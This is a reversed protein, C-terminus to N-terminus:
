LRSNFGDLFFRFGWLKADVVGSLNQFGTLHLDYIFGHGVRDM